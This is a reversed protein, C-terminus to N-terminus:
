TFIKNPFFLQIMLINHWPYTPETFLEEVIKMKFIRLYKDYICNKTIEM